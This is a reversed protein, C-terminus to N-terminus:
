LLPAAVADFYLAKHLLDRYSEAMAPNLNGEMFRKIRWLSISIFGLIVAERLHAREVAPLRRVSEYGRLYSLVLAANVMGKELCTGSISIGLDLILEGVGAQEFDLIARLRNKDFLTNDYYLDGHIIGKAFDVSLFSQAKDPFLKEFVQKFDQPCSNQQCYDRIELPGFGVEEHRRIGDFKKGETLVHLTALGQGIEFCTADNPGPPIGPVFPYLVGHLENYRYVSEGKKTTYPTISYPFGMKSLLLLIDQESALEKPGKDNSIKLLYLGKDTAAKYNSNSIGLSLPVLEVVKEDALPSKYLAFIDRAQSLDIKTYSSM